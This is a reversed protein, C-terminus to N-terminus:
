KQQTGEETSIGALVARVTSELESDDMEKPNKGLKLNIKSAPYSDKLKLATDLYKHRTAFDEVEIFDKTLSNADKMGEGNPAIINAAIVKKSELGQELVELLRDDTLGRKEMLQQITSKVKKLKEGSKYLATNEAYGAERMADTPCKGDLIAKIFKRERIKLRESKKKKM